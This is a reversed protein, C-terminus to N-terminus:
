LGWSVQGLRLVLNFSIYKRYTSLTRHLKPNAFTVVWNMLLTSRTLPCLYLPGYSYNAFFALCRSKCSVYPLLANQSNFTLNFTLYLAEEHSLSVVVFSPPPNSSPPTLAQALTPTRCSLSPQSIAIPTPHALPHSCHSLLLRITSKSAFFQSIGRELCCPTPWTAPWPSTTTLFTRM